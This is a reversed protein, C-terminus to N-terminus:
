KCLISKLVIVAKKFEPLGVKIKDDPKYLRGIQKTVQYKTQIRTGGFEKHIEENFEINSWVYGVTRRMFIIEASTLGSKIQNM